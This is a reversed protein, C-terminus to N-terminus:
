DVSAGANSVVAALESTAVGGILAQFIPLQVNLRETLKSKLWM